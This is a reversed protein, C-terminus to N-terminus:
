ASVPKACRREPERGLALILIIGIGVGIMMIELIRIYSGLQDFMSGALMVATGYGIVFGGYALSYVFPYDSIDFYRACAYALVDTESGYGIGFVICIAIGWLATGDYRLLMVCCFMPLLFLTTAVFRTPLHDLMVGAILRGVILMPGAFAFYTAARTASAGADRLMAQLHIMIMGACAAMLFSALIIQWVRLDTVLRIKDITMGDPADGAPSSDYPDFERGHRILFWIVPLLVAVVLLSIAMFPARWGLHDLALVSIVPSILTAVGVGSLAVSFAVGRGERFARAIMTTWTLPSVGSMGLGIVSWGLYWTGINRSSLGLMFIGIAYVVAGTLAIRKIGIRPMLLSVFPLLVFHVLTMITFGAGIESRGWGFLAGLPRMMVGLLGAHLSMLTMGVFGAAVARWGNRWESSGMATERFM